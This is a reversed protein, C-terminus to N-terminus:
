NLWSARPEWGATECHRRRSTKVLPRRLVLRTRRNRRRDELSGNLDNLGHLGLYNRLAVGALRHTLLNYTADSKRHESPSMRQNEKPFTPLRLTQVSRRLPACALDRRARVRSARSTPALGAM